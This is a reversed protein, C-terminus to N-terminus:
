LGLSQAVSSSTPVAREGARSLVADIPIAISRGGTIAEGNIVGQIGNSSSVTITGDGRAFILVTGGVTRMRVAHDPSAAIAEALSKPTVYGRIIHAELLTTLASFDDSRTLEKGKDGLRAFAEDDPALLTYSAPGAFSAKLGTQKLAEAVTQLGDANDLAASLSTNQSHTAVPAETEPEKACGSLAIGAVVLLALAPQWVNM